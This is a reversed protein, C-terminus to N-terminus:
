LAALYQKVEDLTKKVPTIAVSQIGSAAVSTSTTTTEHGLYYDDGQRSVVVVTVPQNVPVKASMFRRLTANGYM